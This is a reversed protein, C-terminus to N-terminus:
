SYLMPLCQRPFLRLLIKMHVLSSPVRLDLAVRELRPAQYPMAREEKGSNRAFLIQQLNIEPAPCHRSAELRYSHHKEAAARSRGPVEQWCRNWLAQSHLSSHSHGSFLHANYVVKPHSTWLDLLWLAVSCCPFDPLPPLLFHCSLAKFNSQSIQQAQRPVYM